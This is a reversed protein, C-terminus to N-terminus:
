QLGMERKVKKFRERIEKATLNEGEERDDPLHNGDWKFLM